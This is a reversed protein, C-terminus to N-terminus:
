NIYYYDLLVLSLPLLNMRVNFYRDVECVYHWKPITYIYFRVDNHRYSGRAGNLFARSFLLQNALPYVVSTKVTTWTLLSANSVVSWDTAQNIPYKRAYSVLWGLGLYMDETRPIWILPSIEALYTLMPFPGMENCHRWLSRSPYWIVPTEIAWGNTWAWILSFMLARRWKGRHPSDVLSRHIGRVYPWYRPFYIWKIVGDHLIQVDPSCSQLSVLRSWLVRPLQCCYTKNRLACCM